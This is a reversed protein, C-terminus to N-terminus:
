GRISFHEKPCFNSYIITENPPPPPIIYKSIDLLNDEWLAVIGPSSRNWKSSFENFAIVMEDINAALYIKKLDNSMDPRLMLPMSKITQHILHATYIQPECRPANIEIAEPFSLSSPNTYIKYKNLIPELFYHIFKMHTVM